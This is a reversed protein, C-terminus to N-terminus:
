FVLLLFSFFLLTVAFFVLLRFLLDGISLTNVATAVTVSSVISSVVIDLLPVLVETDTCDKYDHKLYRRWTQNKASPFSDCEM